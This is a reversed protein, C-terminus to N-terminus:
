EVVETVINASRLEDTTPFWVTDAPTAFVHAIFDEPVDVQRLVGAM